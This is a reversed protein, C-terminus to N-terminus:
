VSYKIAFDRDSYTLYVLGEILCITGFVLPVIITWFLLLNMLLYFIGWGTQHLYFKHAGFFGLFIAFLCATVKSASQDTAPRVAGPLDPQRVGCKPCLEALMALVAGCHYCFKTAQASPTLELVRDYEDTSIAPIAVKQGCRSCKAVKDSHDQRARLRGGCFSCTLTIDHNM